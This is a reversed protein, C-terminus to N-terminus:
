SGLGIVSLQCGYKIKDAPSQRKFARRYSFLNDVDTYTDIGLDEIIKIGTNQLKEICFMPLNFFLKGDKLMFFREYLINSSILQAKFTVDVEYSQQQICPGLSAAIHIPEAGLQVMKAVTNEIIGAVSGRWGTHAAAVVNAKYDFLLIPCCDATKIGLLINRSKTVLADAEIHEVKTAEEKNNNSIELVNASHIQKVTCLDTYNFGLNQAIITRNVEVNSALDFSNFNCNLSNYEGSSIGGKRGYFGIKVENFIKKNPRWVKM